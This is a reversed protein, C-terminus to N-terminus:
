GEVVAVVHLEAAAVGGGRSREEEGLAAGTSPSSVESGRRQGQLEPRQHARRRRRLRRSMEPLARHLPPQPYRVRRKRRRLILLRVPSPHVKLRLGEDPPEM